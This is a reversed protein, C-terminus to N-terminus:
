LIGWDGKEGENFSAARVLTFDEQREVPEFYGPMREANRLDVRYTNFSIPDGTVTFDPV